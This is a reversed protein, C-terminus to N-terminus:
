TEPGSLVPVVAYRSQDAHFGAERGGPIFDYRGVRRPVRLRHRGAVLHGALLPGVFATLPSHLPFYGGCLVAFVVFAPWDVSDTRLLAAAMVALPLLSFIGAEFVFQLYDNHAYEPHHAYGDPLSIWLNIFSNPGMGFWTLESVAARWIAFRILDSQSPWLLVVVSAAIAFVTIFKWNRSTALFIALFPLRQGSLALLPLVPLVWWWLGWLLGHCYLGVIVIAAIAGSAATSYLLGANQGPASLVANYGWWQLIAILSSVGLGMALGRWVPLLSPLTTGLHFSLAWVAIMMLGWVGDYRNPSWALSIISYAIFLAGATHTWTWEGKRWLALPLLAFLLPWQTAITAGTLGPIYAIALLATAITM